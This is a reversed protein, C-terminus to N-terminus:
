QTQFVVRRNLASAPATDALPEEEGRGVTVLRAEAIRHRRALYQKVAEARRISLGLNYADSGISDTHGEVLFGLGALEASALAQGIRDLMRAAAPTLRASDFEFQIQDFSAKVPDRQPPMVAAGGTPSPAEADIASLEEPPLGGDPLKISRTRVRPAAAPPKLADIIQRVSPDRGSFNTFGGAPQAQATSGAAIAFTVTAALLISRM